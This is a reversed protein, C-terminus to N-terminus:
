NITQFISFTLFLWGQLETFQQVSFLNKGTLITIILLPIQLRGGLMKQHTLHTNILILMSLKEFLVYECFANKCIESIQFVHCTNWRSSIWLWVMTLGYCLFSFDKRKKHSHEFQGDSSIFHFITDLRCPFLLFTIFSSSMEIENWLRNTHFSYCFFYFM